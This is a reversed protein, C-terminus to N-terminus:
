HNNKFVASINDLQANSPIKFFQQDFITPQSDRDYIFNNQIM